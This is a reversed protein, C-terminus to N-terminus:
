WGDDDDSDSQSIVDATFNCEGQHMYPASSAEGSSCQQLMLLHRRLADSELTEISARRIRDEEKAFTADPSTPSVALALALEEDVKDWSPAPTPALAQQPRCGPTYISLLVVLIPPAVGWATADELM